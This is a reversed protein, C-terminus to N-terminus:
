PKARRPTEFGVGLAEAMPEIDRVNTTIVVGDKPCFFIFYADGLGRCEDRTMLSTPHKALQRLIRGRVAIEKRDTYPKLAQRADNLDNRRAVLAAKLCCELGHPCDRPALDLLGAKMQIPADPYCRLKQQPGGFLSTRAKWARTIVHRLELRFADAYLRDPEAKQNHIRRLATLDTFLNAFVTHLAQIATSTLYRHPSRSLRQLAATTALFSKTDAFKNHAWVFNKLPGRKLEKWSFQPVAQRAHNAFAAAAESQSGDKKLLYDVLVTTEIFATTM